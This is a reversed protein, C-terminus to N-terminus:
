VLSTPRGSYTVSCFSLRTSASAPHACSCPTVTSSTAIPASAACGPHPDTIAPAVEGSCTLAFPAAASQTGGAPSSVSISAITARGAPDQRAGAPDQRGAPAL